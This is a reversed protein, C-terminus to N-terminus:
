LTHASQDVRAGNPRMPRSRSTFQRYKMERSDYDVRFTYYDRGDIDTQTDTQRDTQRDTQGQGCAWMVACVRIYSPPITPTGELQASNPM